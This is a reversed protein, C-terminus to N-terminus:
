ARTPPAKKKKKKTAKKARTPKAAPKRKAKPPEIPFAELRLKNRAHKAVASRPHKAVVHTLLSGGFNRRERLQEAFHFGVYFIDDPDLAKEAKLKRALDVAEDSLLRDFHRLCPDAHRDSRGLRKASVKLGVIAAQYLAQPSATGGRVLTRLLRDAEAFRKRSKLSKARKLLAADLADPDAHRLLFAFPEALPDDAEVLKLLRTMLRRRAAPAINAAHPELIRALTALRQEDTEEALRKVLLPVAAPNRRLSSLALQRLEPQPADLDAILIKAAAPTDLRGMKFVAFDRVAPHPSQALRLIRSAAAAPLAVPRLADITPLVVNGLDDDELYTALTAIEAAALAEAIGRLALLARRRVEGTHGPSAFRLLTKKAKPSALMGLLLIGSCAATEKKQVRKHALYKEVQALLVGKARDTMAAIAHDLVFCIHKSVELEGNALARLLLEHATRGGIRALASAAGKRQPLPAKLVAEKLHAVAKHGFGAIADVAAQRLDEHGAFAPLVYGVAEATPSGALAALAYLRPPGADQTLVDSLAALAAPEKAGLEGLVRAAAARLEPDETKLMACIRKTTADM